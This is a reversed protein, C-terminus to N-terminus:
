KKHELRLETPSKGFHKRCFTTMYNATFKYKEALEAISINTMLIDRILKQEKKRILWQRASIGFTERFKRKFASPSMNLRDILEQATEVQPYIQLVNEKFDNDTGLIPAFFRALDEKQYFGCLEIFLMEKKIRQYHICSMGTRMIERTVELEKFLLEHIPLLTIGCKEQQFGLPIYKQLQEISFRNCLSMDRTFSCRMLSIDTIARGHFNDGAAILFMQKEGVRQCVSGATSIDMEGSLIFGLTFREVEERILYEGGKVEIPELISREDSIYNECVFHEKTYKLDNSINRRSKM